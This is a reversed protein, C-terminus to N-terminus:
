KAVNKKPKKQLYTEIKEGLTEGTHKLRMKESVQEQNLKTRAKLEEKQMQVNIKYKEKIHDIFNNGDGIYVGELTYVIPCKKESFGYTRCVSDIFEPWECKDKIVFRVHIDPV